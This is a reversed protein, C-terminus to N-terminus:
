RSETGPPASAGRAGWIWAVWGLCLVLLFLRYVELNFPLDIPLRYSKIPIFWLILLLAALANPWSLPPAAVRVTPQALTTDAM